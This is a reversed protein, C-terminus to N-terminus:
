PVNKPTGNSAPCWAKPGSVTPSTLGADNGALLWWQYDRDPVISSTYSTSTLPPTHIRVDTTGFCYWGDQCSASDNTPDNVRYLYYDAGAAADWSLTM